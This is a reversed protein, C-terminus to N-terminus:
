QVEETSIDTPINTMLTVEQGGDLKLKIIRTQTSGTTTLACLLIDQLPMKRNRSFANPAVATRARSRLEKSGIWGPIKNFRKQYKGSM